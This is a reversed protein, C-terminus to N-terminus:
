DGLLMEAHQRAYEYAGRVGYYGHAGLCDYWSAWPLPPQMVLMAWCDAFHRRILDLYGRVGADLTPWAQFKTRVGADTSWFYPVGPFAHIGGLNYNFEDTGWGTEIGWHALVSTAIDSVNRGALEPYSDLAVVAARWRSGAWGKPDLTGSSLFIPVETGGGRPPKPPHPVPSPPAPRPGPGRGRRPVLLAALLLMAPHFRFAM